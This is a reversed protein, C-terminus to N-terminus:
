RCVIFGTPDETHLVPQQLSIHSTRSPQCIPIKMAYNAVIMKERSLMANKELEVNYMGVSSFVFTSLLGNCIHCDYMQFYDPSPEM